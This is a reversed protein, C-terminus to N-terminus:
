HPYVRALMEMTDLHGPLAPNLHHLAGPVSHYPADLRSNAAGFLDLAGLFQSIRTVEPPPAIVTGLTIIQADLGRAFARDDGALALRRLAFEVALAGRSHALVTEVGGGPELFLEILAASAPGLARQSAAPALEPAGLLAAGAQQAVYRANQGAARMRLLAGFFLPGGLPELALDTDDYGAVVAGVPAGTFDALARALAAAGIASGGLGAVAFRRVSPAARRFARRDAYPRVGLLGRAGTPHVLLIAGAPVDASLLTEREAETLRDTDYSARDILANREAVFAAGPAPVALPLAGAAQGPRM